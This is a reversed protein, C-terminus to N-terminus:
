RRRLVITQMAEGLVAFAFITIVMAIGPFVVAWWQGILIGPTGASIMQGWEPAPPRIGAGVFSLGATILIAVGFTISAQALGPAM